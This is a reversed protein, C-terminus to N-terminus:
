TITLIQKQNLKTKLDAQSKNERTEFDNDYASVSYILVSGPRFHQLGLNFELWSM